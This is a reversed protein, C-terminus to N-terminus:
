NVSPFLGAPIVSACQRATAQFQPSSVDIGAGSLGLTINGNSVIPDPYNPLGHARMCRAIKLLQNVTQPPTNSNSSGGGPLFHRCTTDAAQETSSNADANQGPQASQIINGAANPDPFNPVGHSRMCQSYSLAQQYKTSGSAGSPSSGGGCATMLALAALIALGSLFRMADEKLASHTIGNYLIPPLVLTVSFTV